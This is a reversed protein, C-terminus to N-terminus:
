GRRPLLSMQLHPIFITAGILLAAIAALLVAGAAIDKVKGALPHHDPSVLDTLHEIATNLTETIWVLSMALILLCWERASIRLVIALFIVVVTLFAHIWANHENQLVFKLGRGAHVFSTLRAALSFPRNKSM